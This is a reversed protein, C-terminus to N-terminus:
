RPCLRCTGPVLHRLVLIDVEENIADRAQAWRSLEERLAGVYEECTVQRVLKGHEEQVVRLGAEDAVGSLGFAGWRLNPGEGTHEIGYEMHDISESTAAHHISFWLSEVMGSRSFPKGTGAFVRDVVEGLRARTKVEVDNLRRAQDEWKQWAGWLPSHPIHSRLAEVLM